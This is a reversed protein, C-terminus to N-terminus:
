YVISGIDIKKWIKEIILYKIFDYIYENSKIYLVM